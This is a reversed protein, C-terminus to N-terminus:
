QYNLGFALLQRGLNAIQNTTMVIAASSSPDNVRGHISIELSKARQGPVSAIRVWYDIGSKCDTNHYIVPSGKIRMPM